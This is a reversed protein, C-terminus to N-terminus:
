FSDNSQREKGKIRKPKEVHEVLRQVTMRLNEIQDALLSTNDTFAHEADDREMRTGCVRLEMAWESWLLNQADKGLSAAMPAMIQDILRALNVCEKLCDPHLRRKWEDWASKVHCHLYRTMPCLGAVGTPEKIM